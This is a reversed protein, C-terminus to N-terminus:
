GWGFRIIFGIVAKAQSQFCPTTLSVSASRYKVGENRTYGPIMGSAIFFKIFINKNLSVGPFPPLLLYRWRLKRQHQRGREKGGYQM